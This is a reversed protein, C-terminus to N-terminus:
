LGEKDEPFSGIRRSTIGTKTMCIEYDHHDWKEGDFTKHGKVILCTNPKLRVKRKKGPATM